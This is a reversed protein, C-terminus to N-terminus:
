QLFQSSVNTRAVFIVFMVKLLPARMKYNVKQFCTYWIIIMDDATPDVLLDAVRSKFISYCKLEIIIEVTHDENFDANAAV